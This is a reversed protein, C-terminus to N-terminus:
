RAGADHKGHLRVTDLQDGDFAEGIAVLQVRHLLRKVFVVRQLAAETRRAHQDGCEIKQLDVGVRGLILDALAKRGHQAATGAVYVDDFRYLGPRLYHPLESRWCPSGPKRWQACHTTSRATSM